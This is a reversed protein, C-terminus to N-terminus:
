SKSDEYRKLERLGRSSIRYFPWGVGKGNKPYSKHLQGEHVLTELDYYWFDRVTLGKKRKAARLMRVRDM